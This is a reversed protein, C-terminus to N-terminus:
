RLQYVPDQLFTLLPNEIDISSNTASASLLWDSIEGPKMRSIFDNRYMNQSHEKEMKSVYDNRIVFTENGVWSEGGRWGKVDPPYFLRQGMDRNINSLRQYAKFHDLNLERLLGITLEIPSKILAGRNEPAWFPESQIISGLLSPIYYNSNRFTNAWYNIYKKDPKNRSVFHLWFKESIYESVRPNKLLINIIDEGNFRGIEGMFYKTGSDHHQPRFKVKGQRLDYSWGTFARAASIVDEETYYGEGLTFLELLERAFNENPGNKKSGQGDLFILMAPDKYISHLLGSFEGLSFKRFLENQRFMLQPWKVKQLSSPFHNHWFITMREELPNRTHHIRELWWNVLLSSDKNRQQVFKSRKEKPADLFMSVDELSSIEPKTTYNFDSPIFDALILNVDKNILRNLHSYDAGIGLRKELHSAESINKIRM